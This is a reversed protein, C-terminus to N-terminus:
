EVLTDVRVTSSSTYAFGRRGSKGAELNGEWFSALREEVEQIITQAEGEVKVHLVIHRPNIVEINHKLVEPYDRLIRSVELPQTHSGDAKEWVVLQRSQILQFRPHSDNGQVFSAKDGTRYRFLPLYPNRGGTVLLEGTIPDTELFVDESIQRFVSPEGPLSIGLPGTENLSYLDIVPCQFFQEWLGRLEGTVQLSTSLLAKPKTKIGLKVMQQFSWPDGTLIQPRVKDFWAQARSWYAPHLNVKAFGAGKHRGHTTCYTLTETQYCVQVAVTKGPSLDWHIGYLELAYELVADYCGVARPHNPCLLVQGSTGSTPNIVLGKLDANEPIIEELRLALDHRTMTPLSTWQDLDQFQLNKRFWLTDDKREQVWNLIGEPVDSSFRNWPYRLTNAFADIFAEDERTRRDGCFGTWVPADENNLLIISERFNEQWGPIRSIYEPWILDQM